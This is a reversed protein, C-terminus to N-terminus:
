RAGDARDAAARLAAVVDAVTRDPADNWDGVYPGFDVDPDSFNRVFGVENLLYDELAAVAEKAVAVKVYQPDCDKDDPHVVYAIAGLTCRCGTKPDLYWEQGWRAPDEEFWDAAARLVDAPTRAVTTTM